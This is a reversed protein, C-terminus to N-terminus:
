DDAQSIGANRSEMSSCGGALMRKADRVFNKISNQDGPSMAIPLCRGDPFRLKCHKGGDEWTCGERLAQRVTRRADKHIRLKM